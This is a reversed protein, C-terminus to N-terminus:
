DNRREKMYQDIDDFYKLMEIVQAKNCVGRLGSRHIVFDSVVSKGAEVKALAARESAILKGNVKRFSDHRVNCRSIGFYIANGKRITYLVNKPAGNVRGYRIMTIEQTEM